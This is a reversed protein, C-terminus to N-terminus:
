VKGVLKSGYIILGAAALNLYAHMKMSSSPMGYFLMYLHTLIIIALGLWKFMNM